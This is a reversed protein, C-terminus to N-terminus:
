TAAEMVERSEALAVRCASCPTPLVWNKHVVDRLPKMVSGRKGCLECRLPFRVPAGYDVPRVRQAAECARDVDDTDDVNPDCFKYTM